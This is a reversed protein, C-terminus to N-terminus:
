QAARMDIHRTDTQLIEKGIVTTMSITMTVNVANNGSNVFTIHEYDAVHFAIALSSQQTGNISEDRMLRSNEYRYTIKYNDASSYDQWLFYGYYNPDTQETFSTAQVGDYQIFDLAIRLDNVAALQDTQQKPVVLFQVLVAGLAGMLMTSVTVAILIEILTFGRKTRIMNIM